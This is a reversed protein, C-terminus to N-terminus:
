LLWMMRISHKLHLELKNQVLSLDLRAVNNLDQLLMIAAENFNPPLANKAEKQSSADIPLIMGILLSLLGILRTESIAAILFTTSESLSSIKQSIVIRPVRGNFDHVDEKSKNIMDRRFNIDIPRSTFVSEKAFEENRINSQNQKLCPKHVFINIPEEHAATLSKRKSGTLVEILKLSLIISNPISAQNGQQWHFVSFINQLQHILGCAVLLDVLDDQISLQNKDICSHEMISITSNLLGELIEQLVNLEKTRKIQDDNSELTGQNSSFSNSEQDFNGFSNYIELSSLLMPVLPPFLNRIIFYSRNAPLYLLKNQIQLLGLTTTPDQRMPITTAV